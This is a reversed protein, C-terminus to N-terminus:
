LLRIDRERNELIPSQRLFSIKKIWNGINKGVFGPIMLARGMCVAKVYPAAM